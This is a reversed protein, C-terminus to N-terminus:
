IQCQIGKQLILKQDTVYKKFQNKNYMIKDQLDVFKKQWYSCPQNCLVKLFNPLIDPDILDLDTIDKFCDVYTEFGRQELWASAGDTDYVLFPRCGIIPKYIKESVFETQGINWATETVINLFCRAWNNPHGLSAIDNPVGFKDKSAEPALDDHERDVALSKITGFSVLGKDVLDLNELKNYLQRRHWHMKRNLCMFATDIADTQMSPQDQNYKDSFLAWYDIMYQGSYYGVCIVPCDFEAFWAVQPIAPDLMAVLVIQTFKKKRLRDLVQQHYEDSYWTSNIVVTLSQDRDITHLLSDLLEKEFQKAPWEPGWGNDFWDIIM